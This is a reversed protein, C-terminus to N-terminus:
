LHAVLVGVINWSTYLTCVHPHRYLLITQGFDLKLFPVIKSISMLFYTWFIKFYFTFGYPGVNLKHSTPYLIQIIKTHSFYTSLVNSVSQTLITNLGVEYKFNSINHNYFEYNSLVYINKVGGSFQFKKFILIEDELTPLWVVLKSGRGNFTLFRGLKIKHLYRAV